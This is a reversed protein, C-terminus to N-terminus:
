LWRSSPTPRSAASRADANAGRANCADRVWEAGITLEASLECFFEGLDSPTPWGPPRVPFGCILLLELYM